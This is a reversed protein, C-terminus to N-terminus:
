TEMLPTKSYFKKWSKLEALVNAWVTDQAEVFMELEEAFDDEFLDDEQDNM